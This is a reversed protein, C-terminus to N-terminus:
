PYLWNLHHVGRVVERLSLWPMQKNQVIFNGAIIIQEVETLIM